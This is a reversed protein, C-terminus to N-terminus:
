KGNRRLWDRADALDPSVPANDIAKQTDLQSKLDNIKQSKKESQKGGLFAGAIALVFMGAGALLKLLGSSSLFALIATM